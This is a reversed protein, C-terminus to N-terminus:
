QKPRGGLIKAAIIVPWSYVKFFAYGSVAVSATLSAKALGRMSANANRRRRVGEVVMFPWLLWCATLAFTSCLLWDLLSLGPVRLSKLAGAIV